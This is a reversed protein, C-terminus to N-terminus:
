HAADVTSLWGNRHRLTVEFPEFGQARYFALAEANAAYAQM